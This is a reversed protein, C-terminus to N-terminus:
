AVSMGNANRTIVTPEVRRSAETARGTATRDGPGKSGNTGAVSGAWPRVVSERVAENQAPNATTPTKSTARTEAADAEPSAAIRATTTTVPEGSTATNGSLPTGGDVAAAEMTGLVREAM